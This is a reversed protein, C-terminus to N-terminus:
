AALVSTLSYVSIGTLLTLFGLEAAYEETRKVLVYLFGIIGAALFYQFFIFGSLGLGAYLVKCAVPLAILPLILRQSSTLDPKLWAYLLIGAIASLLLIDGVLIAYPVPTWPTIFFLLIGTNILRCEPSKANWVFFVALFTLVIYTYAQFETIM